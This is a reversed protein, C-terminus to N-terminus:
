RNPDPLERFARLWGDPSTGGPQTLQSVKTVEDGLTFRGKKVDKPKRHLQQGLVDYSNQIEALIFRLDNNGDLNESTFPSELVTFGQKQLAAAVLGPLAEAVNESEEMMGEGGKMGTKTLEVKAPLILVSRIQKEKKKLKPHLHQATVPGIAFPLITLISVISLLKQKM